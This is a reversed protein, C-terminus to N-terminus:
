QCCKDAPSLDARLLPTLLETIMLVPEAEAGCPSLSPQHRGPAANGASSGPALQQGQGVTPVPVLCLQAPGLLLESCEWLLQGQETREM